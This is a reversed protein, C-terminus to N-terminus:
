CKLMPVVFRYWFECMYNEIELSEVFPRSKCYLFIMSAALEINGSNLSQKLVKNTWRCVQSQEVRSGAGGAFCRFSEELLFLDNKSLNSLLKASCQHALSRISEYSSRKATSIFRGCEDHGVFNFLIFLFRLDLLNM